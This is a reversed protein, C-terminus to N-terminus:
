FRLKLGGGLAWERGRAGQPSDRPWFHGVIIEGILWDEHIPQEWKMQLGYDSVPVESDQEGSFILELSLLRQAGRTQYAGLISSWEFARLEQTITASNLWRGALTPSFAHSYSATTTSGLRDDVSWFVTERFEIRDVDSLDWAHRYRAQAYPKLGGRFGLRFDILDYLTLGLGAFFSPDAAEQKLLLQERSFEDPKDKVVDRPDDRGVFLYAQREINPLHMRASFRLTADLDEGQRTWLHLSLRGDSVEGGDDFPQDGFWGDVGRALWVTAARVARRTSALVGLAEDVPTTAPAADLTGNGPAPAPVAASAALLPAVAEAAAMPASACALAASVLM